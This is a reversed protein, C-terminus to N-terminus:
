LVLTAGPVSRAVIDRLINWVEETPAAIIMQDRRTVDYPRGNLDRVIGGAGRYLVVGAAHDWPLTNTSILFDIDGALLRQYDLASCRHSVIANVAATVRAKLMPGEEPKIGHLGLRGSMEKLPRAAYAALDVAHGNFRTPRGREGSVMNENNPDYIWGNRVHGGIVLALITGFRPIGRVYNGTGDLPDIVWIPQGSSLRDLVAADAAVAEEGVVMSGPLLATLADGYAEEAAADADTVVDHPTSKARIQDARLSGFRSVIEQQCVQVLIQEVAAPDVSLPVHALEPATEIM